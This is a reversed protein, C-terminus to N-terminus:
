WAAELIERVQAADEIRRPNTYIWKDRMANEAVDDMRDYDMGADRLRIPLGLSAILKELTEAPPRDPRGLAEAIMQQRQQTAEINFRLVPALLVCSTHGHSVGVAGLAHSIAHSAGKEVGAQMGILSMWAAIQCDLRADIDQPDAKVRPLGAALLRLAHLSSGDSFPTTNISCIDEVAHDIARVGTSLFLWEPTLRTLGPDFIVTTALMSAHGFDQKLGRMTDTCAASMTFEGASLTTPIMVLSITLPRMPPRTYSGDTNIIAAFAELEAPAHIDNALCLGVMKAADSISGGGLALIMDAGAARAEEAARVVDSRPTHPGIGAFLGAFRSGIASKLGDVVAANRALTSSMLVFVAKPGSIEMERALAEAHSLGWVLRKMEPFHYIGSRQM